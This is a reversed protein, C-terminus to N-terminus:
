RGILEKRRILADARGLEPIQPAEQRLEKLLCKANSLSKNEIEAFLQNLKEAIGLNRSSAGMIEELVQSSDLGYSVQPQDTGGERLLIIEEPKLEGLIQPSHSTAIFQVAPFAAKLGNVIRRQWRPHLHVDLEDILIVGPTQRIVEKGLQPNLLCIRRAIDTVLCIVARQGDSFNDFSITKQVGNETQQWNALLTKQPMDYRLDDIGDIATSLATNVLALEDDDFEHFLKGTESSRQYRELCKGIVWNQLDAVNVAADWWNQYADHRSPKETVARMISHGETIWQRNARYFAAIPLTIQEHASHGNQIENISKRIPSVGEVSSQAADSIKEVTQSFVNKEVYGTVTVKVPFQPEFRHRGEIQSTRIHTYSSEDFFPTSVNPLGLLLGSLSQNIGKLLSTKGSGNIGAVINFDAHFEVRLDQHARYNQLHISTLKMM